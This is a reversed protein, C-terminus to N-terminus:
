SELLYGEEGRYSVSYIFFEDGPDPDDIEEGLTDNNFNFIINKYVCNFKGVEGSEKESVFCFQQTDDVTRNGVFVIEAADSDFENPLGADNWGFVHESIFLILGSLFLAVLFALIAGALAQVSRSVIKRTRDSM